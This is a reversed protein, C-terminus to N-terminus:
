DAVKAAAVEAPHAHERRRLRRRLCRFPSPLAFARVPRSRADHRRRVPTVTASHPPASVAEAASAFRIVQLSCSCSAPVPIWMSPAQTRQSTRTPRDCRDSLGDCRSFRSGSRTRHATATRRGRLTRHRAHGHTRATERVVATSSPRVKRVTPGCQLNLDRLFRSDTTGYPARPLFHFFVAEAGRSRVRPM